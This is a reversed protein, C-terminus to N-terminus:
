LTEWRGRVKYAIRTAGADPEAFDDLPGFGDESTADGIFRGEYVPNNDDDWTKWHAGKGSLLEDFLEPDANGPGMKGVRSKEGPEAVHDKTVLWAYM